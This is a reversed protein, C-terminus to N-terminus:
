QTNISGCHPCGSVENIHYDMECTYKEIDGPIFGTAGCWCAYWGMEVLHYPIRESQLPAVEVGLRWRANTVLRECGMKKLREAYLQFHTCHRMLLVGVNVDKPYPITLANGKIVILNDPLPQIQDDLIDTQIEIAYVRRSKKALLRSLRLDGAGIELIVDDALIEDIVLQYTPLDYPAWMMEWDREDQFVTADATGAL